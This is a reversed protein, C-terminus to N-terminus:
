CPRSPVREVGGGRHANYVSPCGSHSGRSMGGLSECARLMDGIQEDDMECEDICFAIDKEIQTKSKTKM